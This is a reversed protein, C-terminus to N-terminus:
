QQQVEGLVLSIDVTARQGVTLTIGTTSQSQFVTKAATVRYNGIPLLPADYRGAADTAVDRAAGTEVNEVKVAAGAIAAGSPDTVVGTIGAEGQARAIGAAVAFFLVTVLLAQAWKSKLFRQNNSWGKM